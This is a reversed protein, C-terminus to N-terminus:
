TPAHEQVGSVACGKFTKNGVDLTATFENEHGDLTCPQSRINLGIKQGQDEGFFEVGKAYASREVTITASKLKAGEISLQDHDVVARWASSNDGFATFATIVTNEPNTEASAATNTAPASAPATVASAAPASAPAPTDSGSQTGGCAALFLALATAASTRLLM